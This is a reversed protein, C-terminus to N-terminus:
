GRVPFFCSKGKLTGLVSETKGKYDIKITDGDVVKLVPYAIDRSPNQQPYYLGSDTLPVHSVSDGLWLVSAILILVSTRFRM